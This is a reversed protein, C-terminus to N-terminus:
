KNKNVTVSGSVGGGSASLSGGSTVTLTPPEEKLVLSFSWSSGSGSTTTTAGFSEVEQVPEAGLLQHLAEGFGGGLIDVEDGRARELGAARAVESSGVAILARLQSHEADTLEGGVRDLRRALGDLTERDITVTSM